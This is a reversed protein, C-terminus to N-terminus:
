EEVTPLKPKTTVRSGRGENEPINPFVIQAPRAPQISSLMSEITSRPLGLYRAIFRAMKHKAGDMIMRDFQAFQTNDIETNLTRQLVERAQATGAQVGLTLPGLETLFFERVQDIYVKLETPLETIYTDKRADIEDSFVTLAHPDSVKKAVALDADFSATPRYFFRSRHRKPVVKRKKKKKKPKMLVPPAAHAIVTLSSLLDDAATEEKKTSLSLHSIRSAM